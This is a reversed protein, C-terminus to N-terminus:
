EAERGIIAPKSGSAIENALNLNFQFWYEIGSAHIYSFCFEKEDADYGGVFGNAQFMDDSEIESWKEDSFQKFKIEKCISQMEDNIPIEIM